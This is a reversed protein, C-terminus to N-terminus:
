RAACPRHFRAAAALAAARREGSGGSGAAPPRHRPRCRGQCRGLPRPGGQRHFRRSRSEISRPQVSHPKLPRPTQRPTAPRRPPPLQALSVTLEGVLQCMSCEARGCVSSCCGARVRQRTLQGGCGHRVCGANRGPEGVFRQLLGQEELRAAAHQAIAAAMQRLGPTPSIGSTLPLPDWVHSVHWRSRSANVTTGSCHRRPLAWRLM